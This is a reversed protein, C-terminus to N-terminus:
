AGGSGKMHRWQYEPTNLDEGTPVAHRGSEAVERIAAQLSKEIRRGSGLSISVTIAFVSSLGTNSLFLPLEFLSFDEGDFYLYASLTRNLTTAGPDDAADYFRAPLSGCDIVVRQAGRNTIRQAAVQADDLSDISGGTILEADPKSVVVLDAVGLREAVADLGRAPLVTEGSPGSAVIELVVPAEVSSAWDLVAVANKVSGLIGIRVAEPSVVATIHELQSSVTDVPVETLDTVENHSAAIIATCVTVPASGLARAALIDAGLGRESGAYLAGICLIPPLQAPM